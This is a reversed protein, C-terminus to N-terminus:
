STNGAKLTEFMLAAQWRHRISTSAPAGSPQEQTATSILRQTYKTSRTSRLRCQPLPLFAHPLAATAVDARAMAKRWHSDTPSAAEWPLDALSSLQPPHIVPTQQPNQWIRSVPSTPFALFTDRHLFIIWLGQWQGTNINATDTFAPSEKILSDFM